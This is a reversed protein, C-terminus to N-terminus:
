ILMKPLVNAKKNRAAAMSADQLLKWDVGVILSASIISVALAVTLVTKASVCLAMGDAVDVSRGVFVGIGGVTVGVSVEVAEAVGERVNVGPGVVVGINGGISLKTPM